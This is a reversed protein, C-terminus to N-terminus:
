MEKKKLMSVFFFTLGLGLVGLFVVALMSM